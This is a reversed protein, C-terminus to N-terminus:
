KKFTLTQVADNFGLTLEGPAIHIVRLYTVSDKNKLFVLDGEKYPSENIILQAQGNLHIIGSIRLGAAYLALAETDDRPGSPAAPEAKVPVIPGSEPAAPTAAVGSLQFPNPLVAPLPEPNLRSKFLADIHQRTLLARESAKLQSASKGKAAGAAALAGAAVVLGLAFALLPPLRRIM